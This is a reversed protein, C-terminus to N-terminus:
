KFYNSDIVCDNIKNMRQITKHMQMIYEQNEEGYTAIDKEPQYFINGDYWSGGSFYVFGPYAEDFADNGLYYGSDMGFLNTITPVIDVASTVKTVEVPELSPSFIFFPVREMIESGADRNYQGLKEKDKLGYAYHDAVGIIVTDEYLGDAKLREILNTFFMDTDHALLYLNKTEEDLSEDILDPYNAKAGKLKNDEIDYPLHASYSIFFDFFRGETMREYVADNKPVESDQVCAELSMYKMLWYYEDYGFQKHMSKRNYFEPGNFHFSNVRYGEKGFISPMAYPFANNVYVSTSSTDTPCYFGTNMAFEANFTYGTGRNPMYHNAFNIGHDMMYRITPTYKETIVWDDISELLVFVVNKGRLIGTMENPPLSKKEEFYQDCAELEESTYIDKQLLERCVSKITFQYFGCMNLSKNADNFYQYVLPPKEWVEWAGQKKQLNADAVIGSHLLLVLLFPLVSLVGRKYWKPYSPRRWLKLTVVLFLLYLLILVVVKFDIHSLAEGLYDLGEGALIINGIWMFQDFICFYVYNVLFLIGFFLYLLTYVVKGVKKPLVGYCFYVLGFIWFADFLVPVVYYKIDSVMMFNIFFRMVIDALFFPFVACFVFFAYSYQSQNVKAFWSKKEQTDKREIIKNM